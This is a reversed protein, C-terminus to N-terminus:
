SWRWGERFKQNRALMFLPQMTKEYANLFRVRGADTVEDFGISLRIAYSEFLVDFRSGSFNKKAVNLAIFQRDMFSSFYYEHPLNDSKSSNVSATTPILNWNEDHGIFPWPLFHDISIKEPSLIEGSYICRFENGEAALALMVDKWFKTQSNLSDREIPRFLKM